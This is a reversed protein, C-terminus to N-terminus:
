EKFQGDMFQLDPLTRAAGVFGGLVLPFWHSSSGAWALLSVSIPVNSFLALRLVACLITSLLLASAALTVNRTLPAAISCNITIRCRREFNSLFKVAMTMLFFGSLVIVIWLLSQILASLPFGGMLESLLIMQRGIGKM